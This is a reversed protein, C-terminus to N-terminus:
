HMTVEKALVSWPVAEPSPPSNLFEKEIAQLWSRFQDYLRNPVTM